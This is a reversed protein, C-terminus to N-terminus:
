KLEELVDRYREIDRLVDAIFEVSVHEQWGPELGLQEEIHRSLRYNRIRAVAEDLTLM